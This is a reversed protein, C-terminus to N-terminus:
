ELNESSLWDQDFSSLLYSFRNYVHDLMHKFIVCLVAKPRGFKPMLDTYRCPFALRRLLLCLAETASVRVRNYTVIEEDDGFGIIGLLRPIDAKKLRLDIWCEDDTWEDFNFPPFQRMRPQHPNVENEHLLLLFEEEGILGEEFAEQLVEEVNRGQAM